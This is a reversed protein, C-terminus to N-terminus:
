LIRDSLIRISPLHSARRQRNILYNHNGSTEASTGKRLSFMFDLHADIDLMKDIVPLSHIQFNLSNKQNRALNNGHGLIGFGTIDTAGHAMYKHMLQAGRRNLRSMSVVAKEYASEVEESTIKEKVKNWNKENKSDSERSAQHLWQYLNVAM